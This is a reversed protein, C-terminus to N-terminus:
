QSGPVSARLNRETISRLHQTAALAEPTEAYEDIVQQYIRAAAVTSGSSELRSAVKLLISARSVPDSPDGSEFLRTRPPLSPPEGAVSEGAGPFPAPGRYPPINMPRVYRPRRPTPHRWRYWTGKQKSYLYIEVWALPLVVFVAVVLGITTLAAFSKLAIGAALILALVANLIMLDRIRHHFMSKADAEERGPSLHCAHM